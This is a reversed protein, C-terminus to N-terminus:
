HNEFHPGLIASKYYMDQTMPYQNQLPIGRHIQPKIKLYNVNM